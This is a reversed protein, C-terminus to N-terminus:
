TLKFPYEDGYLMKIIKMKRKLAKLFRDSYSLFMKDNTDKRFMMTDCFKMIKHQKKGEKELIREILGWKM